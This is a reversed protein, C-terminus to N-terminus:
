HSKIATTELKHESCTYRHSPLRDIEPQLMGSPRVDGLREALHLLAEYNDAGVDAGGRELEDSSGTRPSAGAGGLGDLVNSSDNFVDNFSDEEQQSMSSGLNNSARHNEARANDGLMQAAAMQLSSGNQFNLHM